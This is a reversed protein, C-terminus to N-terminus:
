NFASTPVSLPKYMTHIHGPLNQEIEIDPMAAIM